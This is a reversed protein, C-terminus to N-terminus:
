DAGIGQLIGLMGTAAIDDVIMGDDDFKYFNMVTTSFARGNPKVGAFPAKGTFTGSCTWLAAGDAGPLSFRSSLAAPQVAGANKGFRPKVSPRPPM